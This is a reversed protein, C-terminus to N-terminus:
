RGLYNKITQVMIKGYEEWPTHVGFIDNYSQRDTPKITALAVLQDNKYIWKELVGKENALRARTQNLKDLLDLDTIIGGDNGVLVRFSNYKITKKRKGTNVKLKKHADNITGLLEETNYKPPLIIGVFAKFTYEHGEELLYLMFADVYFYSLHSLFENRLYYRKVGEEHWM